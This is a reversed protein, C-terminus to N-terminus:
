KRLYVGRRSVYDFSFIHELPSNNVGERGIIGGNVKSHV